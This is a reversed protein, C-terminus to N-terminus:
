RINTGAASANNALLAAPVQQVPLIIEVAIGPGGVRNYMRCSGGVGWVLTAVTALGLGMGEVNGTFYPEAQYYPTFAQTLQEPSLTLGDDTVTLQVSTDDARAVAVEVAPAHRPHFRQANTFLEHLVREFAPKSLATQRDALEDCGTVALSDLGLRAGLRHAVGALQGITFGNGRHALIPSEVYRLVECIDDRLHKAGSSALRAFDMTEAVSLTPTEDVLLELGMQMETLASRLKHSIMSQFTWMDRRSSVQETVDRLRLLRAASDDTRQHPLMAVQLWTAAATPVEPRVLYRLRDRYRDVHSPWDAWGSEPECSYQKRVLDLFKETIPVGSESSIGLYRRAQPNAYLVDDRESVLLFGDDAQEVLWQFRERQVMLKRYRNLRLVTRVRARLETRNFPKSVFDDAGAEIGQLRSAEDDLATVMIVPVEALEHSARLQRCVEFGDMGPMMVDLLVLDPMRDAAQALAEPGDGAFVLEHSESVLLQELTERGAPFDDVILVTNRHPM